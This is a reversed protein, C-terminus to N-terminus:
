WPKKSARRRVRTFVLSPLVPLFLLALNSFDGSSSTNAAFCSFAPTAPNNIVVIEGLDGPPLLDGGGQIPEGCMDTCEGALAFAPPGVLLCLALAMAMLVNRLGLIGDVMAKM